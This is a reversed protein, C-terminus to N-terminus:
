KPKVSNPAPGVPVREVGVLQWGSGSSRFYVDVPKAWSATAPEVAAISVKVYAGAGAPLGTPAQLREATGTTPGGIAQTTGTANDFRSWSATYGGKPADVLGSRVAPNEFTLASGDFAFKTLPNVKTFYTRGIKARRQILVDALLKEAAPDKFQGTKVVARIHEDTFAMVRLTAWLEDDPRIRLLAAVPVRPKWEEPEYVEASFLGVEPHEDYNVTQWPAMWFNLSFFRAATRDGEYLYEYGEEGQRPNLSGTGFTSGVDQLYHRVISRGNETVVTDLTNGAKIDVLNTWGGFVQLARLERRHEHPVIDNPDDPRTGHDKFGGVVKGDLGRQAIVRYSGDASRNARDFVDEVDSATFPRRRGHSRVTVDKGVVVNEPRVTTLHTEIQYYGLAWFMRTAVAIAATAANPYGDADMSIFWVSGKEDRITFGPATGATKPRIVTWKGPAPEGALNPGRTIEDVTVARSYIRNTFWSSDPVEDITNVNQARVGVTPDGLKGFLNLTLDAILGIDWEQVKSADQTEPERALPDDAYFKPRSQAGPTVASFLLLAAAAAGCFLFRSHFRMSRIQM